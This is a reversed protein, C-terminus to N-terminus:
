NNAIKLRGQICILWKIKLKCFNIADKKQRKYYCREIKMQKEPAFVVAHSYAEKKSAGLQAVRAPRSPLRSSSFAILRPTEKPKPSATHIIPFNKNLNSAVIFIDTSRFGVHNKRQRILMKQRQDEYM